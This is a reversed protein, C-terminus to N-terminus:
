ETGSSSADLSAKIQDLREVVRGLVNLISIGVGIIAFLNLWDVVM